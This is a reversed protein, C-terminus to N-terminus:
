SILSYLLSELILRFVKIALAFKFMDWYKNIILLTCCLIIKTSCSVLWSLISELDNMSDLIACGADNVEVRTCYPVVANTNM